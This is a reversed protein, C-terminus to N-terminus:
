RTKVAATLVATSHTADFLKAAAALQDATVARTAQALAAGDIGMQARRGMAFATEFPADAIAKASPATMGLADGYTDVARAPEDAALPAGVIGSIEARLRAAAPEAPQGKPLPGGVFLIDPRALPAFDAKWTRATDGPATVRSAAVLFAPYTPDRPEPVPVALAVATPAENMVLTGTVRSAAPARAAPMKGTPADDFEARVRKLVDQLDFHGAIVLRATTAGYHSRRFSEVEDLTLKDLEAAVGGRLGGGRSPHLSEAARTMAAATADREQLTAVENFLRTKERALDNETPALRSMRLAADDLEEIIRESPVEVAYLTFDAGTEAHFGHGYRAELQSITRAPRDPGGATAILHEVLHAMGSRGAPDHDAGVDFLLVLAAKDGKPTALLDVRLGNELRFHADTVKKNCGASLTALLWLTFAARRFAM